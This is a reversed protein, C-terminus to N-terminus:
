DGHKLREEKALHVYRFFPHTHGKPCQAGSTVTTIDDFGQSEMFFFLEAAADNLKRMLELYKPHSILRDIEMMEMMELFEADIEDKDNGM